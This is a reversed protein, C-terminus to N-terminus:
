QMDKWPNEVSFEIPSAYGPIRINTQTILINKEEIMDEGFRYIVDLRGLDAKNEYDRAAKRTSERRDIYRTFQDGYRQELMANTKEASLVVATANNGGFGKSNIFAVEIGQSGVDIDELAFRLHAQNVDDAIKPVTKIGPILKYKFTGLASVLQDGSAAAITHGVYSKVATVPWHDIEFTAAVQSIIESETVRNAPTSSGHAHVFSRRQVGEIGVIKVAAAVAKAFSIYNGVGPSSISKKLGDANIFVEPVAGHIDAGLEIALQDDMLVIYQTGESLTFGCNDGFPRSAKRWDPIATGEIRALNEDSGLAGMNSFGESM